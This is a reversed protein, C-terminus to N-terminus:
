RQLQVEMFRITDTKSSALKLEHVYKWVTPFDKKLSFAFGKANECVEGATMGGHGVRVVLQGQRVARALVSTAGLSLRFSLSEKEDLGPLATLCKTSFVNAGAASAGGSNSNGAPSAKSAGAATTVSSSSSSSAGAGAVLSSAAKVKETISVPLRGAIRADVVFHEFTNAVRFARQAAEPDGRKCISEATVVADYYGHRKNIKFCDHAIVKPVILCTTRGDRPFVRHPLNFLRSQTLEPCQALVISPLVFELYVGQRAPDSKEKECVRQLKYLVAKTVILRKDQPM